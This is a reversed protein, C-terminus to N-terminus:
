GSSCQYIAETETLMRKVTYEKQYTERAKLGLVARLEQDEILEVLAKTLETVNGPEILLGNKKDIIVEPIGGVRTAIIPKGFSIGELLVLPHTEHLSPIVLLDFYNLYAAVNTQYGAFTVQNALNNQTVFSHYQAEQSGTGVIELHIEPYTKSLQGFAELLIHIGKTTELRAIVGIILKPAKLDDKPTLELDNHPAALLDPVGNAITQILAKKIGKKLLIDKEAKAVAIVKTAFFNCLRACLWYDFMKMEGHFGHVTFVLPIKKPTIMRTLFLLEPAGHIHILDVPQSELIRKLERFFDKLGGLLNQDLRTFLHIKIQHAEFSSLTEGPPALLIIQYKDSFGKILDLLHKETGGISLYPIVYLITPM